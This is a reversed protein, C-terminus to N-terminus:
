KWRGIIHVKIIPNLSANSPNSIWFKFYVSGGTISTGTVHPNPLGSSSILSMKIDEVTKFQSANGTTNWTYVPSYYLEGFKSTFSVSSTTNAARWAEMVGSNWKRYAYSGDSGQAIVYDSAEGENVLRRWAGWVGGNYYRHYMSAKTSYPLAIQARNADATKNAYFLTMIYWYASVSSPRNSHNTLIIHDLTTNPDIGSSEYKTLGNTIEKGFRDFVPKEFRAVMSVDMGERSSPKGFAVGKGGKLFDMTYAIPPLSIEKVFDTTDATTSGDSFSLRFVYSEETSWGGVPGQVVSSVTGSSGSPSGGAVNMSDAIYWMGWSPKADPITEDVKWNFSIKAYTGEDSLTGDSECRDLRIDSVTPSLYALEWIAYLTIASNGTYNDGPSYAVTTSSASTGWGLFNYNTRTPRSSSLKLTVGYTKTQSSPAGTGGNADYSVTFTNAKWVAYLTTASNSTYNGGPQYAVNGSASTAWGQFTYGTRTPKVTSLKLTDGYWKTQSGPAGTGGNANYSVKYSTKAPITIYGSAGLSGGYSGGWTIDFYFACYLSVNRSYTQKNVTISGSALTVTSSVGNINYSKDVVRVGDIDAFYSRPSGNTYAAYGYAVYEFSWAFKVTNGTEGTQSVNFRAQPTTGGAWQNTAISAM